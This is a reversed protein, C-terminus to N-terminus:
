DGFLSVDHFTTGAIGGRLVIRVRAVGDPVALTQEVLGLAPLSLSSAVAGAASLQQVVVLGAGGGTSAVVDYSSGAVVDIPESTWSGTAGATVSSGDYSTGGGSATWADPSSGNSSQEFSPNKVKNGQVTVRLTGANNQEDSEAVLATRDATITIAHQGSVDRTDWSVSVDASGGAPIAPTQVTGLVNEGDLLFETQSAPADANGANAVTARLTVKEGQRAKNNSATANTVLLDPKREVVVPMHVRSDCPGPLSAFCPESSDYYVAAERQHVFFPEIRLVVRSEATVRPVNVTAQVLRGAGPLASLNRVVQNVVEVGDAFLRIEFDENLLFFCAPCGWWFEVTLPGELTTPESLKWLWNPETACRDFGAACTLLPNSAFVAPPGSDLTEDTSLTPGDPCTPRVVALDANGVGTCGDHRNGHFHLTLRELPEVEEEEDLAAVPLHAESVSDDSPTLVVQGFQWGLDTPSATITVAQTGGPAITFSSPSISLALGADSATRVSWTVPQSAVSEVVRTWSCTGHCADSAMSPLNLSTPDGGVDPNALEYNSVLEDLVLGARGANRLEVRGAGYDFPDSPTAEDEDLIGHVEDNHGSGSTYGTTMLASRVEDPSWDPHLARLLAGAGATHPSSMSTGSIVTYSSPPGAYAALVDVGPATVDPKLISGPNRNPGRSSFAAMVDGHRAEEQLVAGTLTATHGSGSRLWAKLAEGDLFSILVGPLSYPDAVLGYGSPEDNAHVFGNAGGARVNDAKALRAIGNGRDCVVIEGNRWTGAPFPTGCFRDGYDGAYVIPAPGYGSTVSKGHIDALPGASSTMGVLDSALKRDHTSAAVTTIWPANGPSGVTAAGPGANGASTAVFVGAARANKFAVADEDTWPHPSTTSGISYNVVDVMDLTAQNIAALLATLFCCAKYSVVNAHPAVGSIRRELTLTPAVLTADLLNGAVTSAVHSGHGNVDEPNGADTTAGAAGFEYVGILKDNCYPAGTVPDCLGFFRGRPNSHQYGDVPGVEAFSPHDINIGTDIIGAVIGEGMTGPVGGTSGGNWVAPAGIWQPGADTHLEREEDRRVRTVGPLAAVTAAESPDLTIAVGNLVADYRFRARVDRGLAASVQALLAEHAGALYRLYARSAASETDLRAEGTAEPDTPALGELGGEYAALPPDSLQVIYLSREDGAAAPAGAAVLAAFAAILPLVLLLSRRV